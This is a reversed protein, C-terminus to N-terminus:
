RILHHLNIALPILKLNLSRIIFKTTSDLASRMRALGQDNWHQSFTTQAAPHWLGFLPITAYFDIVTGQFQYGDLLTKLLSLKAPLIRTCEKWKKGLLLLQDDITKLADCIASKIYALKIAPNIFRDLNGFQVKIEPKKESDVLIVYEDDMLADVLLITDTVNIQAIPVTGLSFLSIHNDSDAVQLTYQNSKLEELPNFLDSVVKTLDHLLLDDFSPKCSANIWQANSFTKRKTSKLEYAYNKDNEIDIILHGNEFIIAIFRGNPSFKLYEINLNNSIDQLAKTYM